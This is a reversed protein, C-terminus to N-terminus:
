DYIPSYQQQERDISRRPKEIMGLGQLNGFISGLLRRVRGAPLREMARAMDLDAEYVITNVLIGKM